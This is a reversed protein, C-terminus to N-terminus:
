KVTAKKNLGKAQLIKKYTKLKGKPVKVVAKAPTGKFAKAGVTAKKLKTTNIVINKLSKCGYFANKGIKAVNSGIVVKALKKSNKFTNAAISTVKYTKGDAKITKPITVTGKQSLPKQYEVTGNKGTKTVRYIGNSNKDKIKTGVKTEQPTNANGTRVLAMASIPAVTAKGNKIKKLADTGAAKDNICVSWEGDPLSVTTSSTNANFIVFLEDATEGNIGGKIDLAVVNKDLGDVVSVTKAVDEANSLRLAGHAKRFAILGKYYNFVDANATEELNGWQIANVTDGANYSNHNFSGDENVKSRLFEEGAQMFPVGEAMLYVAAALNNMRILDERSADPRSNAIRDILTHNDHCSAYNITQSPSSCWDAAGLFNKAIKEEDGQEGSIFGPATDNFVHGKLADRISDNFYAFGPTQKSNVQTAMTYKGTVEDNAMSWGEGYFMVGPHKKHVEAVIENVTDVDLLGVLDFRFGDIHYEDAWYCVSDVIYKRVMSRESATDNGCGSDEYLKGDKGYRSFYKPVLKNICFENANYVHNYVVDMVVSIDNNHLSQVMQKLEKVRVAGDSPNTSYSGEPVNYNVPDYGWNYQSGKGTEDVSGFDYMPLIHLYSIGLEKMHNVAKAKDETLGLFKGKNAESVGSKEDITLDRIHGEYIIQDTISEGEHPNSDSEWGTPNTTNLDIVMARKGNVGTTRAYPDCIDKVEKGERTVTYTYYIGNLDGAKETTWTGNVDKTMTLTDILDDTGETGSKYLNVVVAEAEPSWVRFTTKEKTWTAGLDNGTYTYKDEFEKTEYYVPMQIQQERGDYIVKYQKSLDLEKALCITYVKNGAAKVESVVAENGYASVKFATNLSDDAKLEETMEVTITHNNEDYVASKVTPAIVVDDGYVCKVDEVGSEVYLSITGSVVGMLDIFRDSEVDKSEWENGPTSHRVIYGLSGAGTRVAVTAAVSGDEATAFDYQGGDISGTQDVDWMYLNWGDYAADQRHYYFKLTIDAAKVISVTVETTKDEYSAALVVTDQAYDESVTIKGNSITVQGALSTDKLSYSATVTEATGDAKLLALKPLETEKGKTVRLAGAALGPLIVTSNGNKEGANLPDQIWDKGNLVFKYEFSQGQGVNKITASWVNDASKEMKVSEGINWSAGPLTGMLEVSAAEGTEDKYNLTVNYTGDENQEIVPSTLKEAAKAIVGNLQSFAGMTFVMAFVLIYSIARNLMTHQKPYFQKKKEM